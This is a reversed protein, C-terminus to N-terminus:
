AHLAAVARSVADFRARTLVAGERRVHAPDVRVVRDVRV